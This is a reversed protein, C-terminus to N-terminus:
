IGNTQSGQSGQADCQEGFIDWDSERHAEYEARRASFEAAEEGLVIRVVDLAMDMGASVGASTTVHGDHVWRAKKVWRVADGGHSTVWAWGLKNTTARKGELLGAAPPLFLTFYPVIIILINLTSPWIARM